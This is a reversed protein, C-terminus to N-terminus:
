AANGGRLRLVHAIVEAVARYLEVPVTKGVKGNKHLARALPRNEIIPIAHKRAKTRMALAADETAKGVVVPAADREPDYRLAVAFHTPNTVLVTATEVGGVARQAMMERARRRMKHKMAPDQEEQKFEDKQEQKSMKSESEFKRLAIVYDIAAVVAFAGGGWLVLEVAIGAVELASVRADATGLMLLRPMASELLGKVVYGITGIKLLSKGMEIAMEKGPTLTKLKGLPDLRELKPFVLEFSFLGKSQVLGAVIAAISASVIIPLLAWLVSLSASLAVTPTKVDGLRFVRLTLGQLEAAVDGASMGLTACVMMLTAASILDHSQAIKGDKRLDGLKKESAQETKDSEESM